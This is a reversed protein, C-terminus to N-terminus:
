VFARPLGQTSSEFRVLANIDLTVPPAIWLRGQLEKTHARAIGYDFDPGPLAPIRRYKTRIQLLTFTLQDDTVKIGGSGVRLDNPLHNVGIAGAESCIRRDKTVDSNHRKARPRHQHSCWIADVLHQGEAVDVIPHSLAPCLLGECVKISNQLWTANQPNFFMTAACVLWLVGQRAIAIHALIIHDLQCALSPKLKDTPSLNVGIWGVRLIM